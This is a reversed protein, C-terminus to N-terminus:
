KKPELLYLNVLVIGDTFAFRGWIPPLPFTTYTISRCALVVVGFVILAIGMLMIQKM